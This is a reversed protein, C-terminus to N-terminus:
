CFALGKWVDLLLWLMSDLVSTAKYNLKSVPVSGGIWEWTGIRLKLNEILFITFSCFSIWSRKKLYRELLFDESIIKFSVMSTSCRLFPAM